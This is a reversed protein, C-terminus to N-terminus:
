KELKFGEFDNTMTNWDLLTEPDSIGHIIQADLAFPDVNFLKM